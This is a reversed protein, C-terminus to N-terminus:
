PIKIAVLERCGADATMLFVIRMLPLQALVALLAMILCRPSLLHREIVIKRMEWKQTPMCDHWALLAMFARRELVRRSTAQAAVAIGMVLPAQSCIAGEAMRRVSPRAPAEIM